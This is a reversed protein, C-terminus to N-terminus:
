YGSNKIDLVRILEKTVSGVGKQKVIFLLADKDCDTKVETLIQINGSTAEKMM